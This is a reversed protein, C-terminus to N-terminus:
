SAARNSAAELRRLVFGFVLLVAVGVLTVASVTQFNYVRIADWLLAGLGGAGLAGLVIAYRFSQDFGYGFVWAMRRKAQAGVALVMLQLFGAATTRLQTVLYADIDDLVDSVMKALLNGVGFSIVLTAVWLTQGFLVFVLLAVVVTPISRLGAMLVQFVRRSFRNQNLVNSAGAGMFLAYAMAIFGAGIAMLSTEFLGRWIDSSYSIFDPSVLQTIFDGSKSLRETLIVGDFFSVFFVIAAGLFGLPLLYNKSTEVRSVSPRTALLRLRTSLLESLILLACLAITAQLVLSYNLVGLGTKLVLGIGGGGFVGIVTAIRLNIDFRFLVQSVLEAQSVPLKVSILTQVRNLAFEKSFGPIDLRRTQFAQPIQIASVGFTGIALAFGGAIPGLGILQSIVLVLVLEPV